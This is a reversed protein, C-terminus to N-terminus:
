KELVNASAPMSGASSQEARAEPASYVGDAILRAKMDELSLSSYKNWADVVAKAYKPDNCDRRWLQLYLLNDGRQRANYLTMAASGQKEPAESFSQVAEHCNPALNAFERCIAGSETVFDTRGGLQHTQLVARGKCQEVFYKAVLQPLDRASEGGYMQSVILSLKKKPFLTNYQDIWYKWNELVIERTWGYPEMSAVSPAHMEEGNPNYNHGMVQVQFVRPDNGYREAIAKLDGLYLEMFKPDWPLPVHTNQKAWKLPGAKQAGEAYVWEPTAAGPILALNVFKGASAAISILQELNEWDIRDKEPHFQKWQLKMTIGSIYPNGALLAKLSEVKQPMDVIPEVHTFVGLFPAKGGEKFELANIQEPTVPAAPEKEQAESRFIMLALALMPTILGRRM